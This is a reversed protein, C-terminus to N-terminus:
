DSLIQKESSFINLHCSFNKQHNISSYQFRM